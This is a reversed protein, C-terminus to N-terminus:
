MQRSGICVEAPEVVRPSGDIFGQCCHFYCLFPHELGLNIANGPLDSEPRLLRIGLFSFSIKLARESDSTLLLCFGPFEAGGHAECAEPAVLALHLLRAFQKSRDVAPESLPKVRAIQLLRLRQQLLQRCLGAILYEHEKSKLPTSPHAHKNVLLGSPAYCKVWIIPVQPLVGVKILMSTQGSAAKLAAIQDDPTQGNTSVCYGVIQPM